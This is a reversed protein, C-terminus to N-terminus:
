HKATGLLEIGINKNKHTLDYFPKVFKNPISSKIFDFYTKEEVEKEIENKFAIKALEVKSNAITTNYNEVAFVKSVLLVIILLVGYIKLNKM